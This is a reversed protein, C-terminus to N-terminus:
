AAIGFLKEQEAWEIPIETSLPAQKTLSRPENGALITEVINPSLGSIRLLRALHTRCRGDRGGIVRDPCRRGGPCRLETVVSISPEPLFDLPRVIQVPRKLTISLALSVSEPVPLLSREHDM